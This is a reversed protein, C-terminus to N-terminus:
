RENNESVIKQIVKEISKPTLKHKHPNNEFWNRVISEFSIKKINSINKSEKIKESDIKMPSVENIVRTCIPGMDIGFYLLFDRILENAKWRIDLYADNSTNISIDNGYAAARVSSWIDSEENTPLIYLTYEVHPLKSGVSYYDKIGTIKIKVNIFYFVEPSFYDPQLKLKFVHNKLFRNIREIVLNTMEM